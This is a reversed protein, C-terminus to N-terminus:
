TGGAAACAAPMQCGPGDSIAAAAAAAAAAACTTTGESIYM